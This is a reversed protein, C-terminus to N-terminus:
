ASRLKWIKARYVRSFPWVARGTIKDGVTKVEAPNQKLFRHVYVPQIKARDAIERVTGPERMAARVRDAQKQSMRNVPM